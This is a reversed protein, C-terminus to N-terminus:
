RIRRLAFFPTKLPAGADAMAKVFDAVAPMARDVGDEMSGNFLFDANHDVLAEAALQDPTKPTVDPAPAGRRGFPRTSPAYLGFIPKGQELLEIVPNVPRRPQGHAILLPM